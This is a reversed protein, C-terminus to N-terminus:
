LALWLAPANPPEWGAQSTHAQRCQYRLGGYTVVDGVHYAVGPAWAAGAPPPTTPPPTAPPPTAPPPTGGPRDTAALLAGLASAQTRWDRANPNTGSDQGSWREGLRNLADRDHSWISDAQTRAYSRYSAVGTTDALDM